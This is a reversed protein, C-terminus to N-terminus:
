GINPSRRSSPRIAWVNTSYVFVPSAVHGRSRGITFDATSAIFAAVAWACSCQPTSISSNTTVPALLRPHVVHSEAATSSRTFPITGITISM